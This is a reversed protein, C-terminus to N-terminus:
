QVVLRVGDLEVRDGPRLKKGRMTCSEGNVRVAGSQILQKAEGGTETLAAFKLLAELKIYETSIKVSEERVSTGGREITMPASSLGAGKTFPNERKRPFVGQRLPAIGDLDAPEM